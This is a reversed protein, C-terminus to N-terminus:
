EYGRLTTNIQRAETEIRENTISVTPNAFRERAMSIEYSLRNIEAQQAQLQPVITDQAFENRIAINGTGVNVGDITDTGRNLIIPTSRSESTYQRVIGRLTPAETPAESQEYSEEQLNPLTGVFEVEWYIATDLKWVRNNEDIMGSTTRYEDTFYEITSINRSKIYFIKNGTPYKVTVRFRTM